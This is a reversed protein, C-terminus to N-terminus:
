VRLYVVMAESGNVPLPEFETSNVGVSGKGDIVGVVVEVRLSFGTDILISNFRLELTDGGAVTWWLM